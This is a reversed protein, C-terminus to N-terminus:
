TKAGGTNKPEKIEVVDKVKQTEEKDVILVADNSEIVILNKLGIGVILRKESRLYCDKSNEIM